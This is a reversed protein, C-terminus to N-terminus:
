DDNHTTSFSPSNRAHLGIKMRDTKEDCFIMRNTASIPLSFLREKTFRLTTNDIQIRASAERWWQM